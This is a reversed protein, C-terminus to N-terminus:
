VKLQKRIPKLNKLRHYILANQRPYRVTIPGTATPMMTASNLAGKFVGYMVAKDYKPPPPKITGRNHRSAGTDPIATHRIATTGTQSLMSDFGTSQIFVKQMGGFTFM